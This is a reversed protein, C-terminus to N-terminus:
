AELSASAAKRIAEFESAHEKFCASPSCCRIAEEVHDLAERYKQDKLAAKALSLRKECQGDMYELYVPDRLFDTM